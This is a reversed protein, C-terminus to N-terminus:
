GRLPEAGPAAAMLERGRAVLEAPEDAWFSLETIEESGRPTTATWPSRLVAHVNVQGSTAIQLNVGGDATERRQLTRASSPLDRRGVKLSEVAEWPVCIDISPGNRVRLASASLLHPYVKFGALFGLMWLLGWVSVVLGIVRVSHWPILLHFFPIEIASAFIWLLLLPTVERSYGFATAGVRPVDPRRAVWRLLSRYLRLEFLVVRRLLRLLDAM